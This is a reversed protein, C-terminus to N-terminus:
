WWHRLTDAVDSRFDDIAALVVAVPDTADDLMATLDMAVGVETAADATAQHRYTANARRRGQAALDYRKPGMQSAHCRALAVAEDGQGTLDATVVSDPALWDLDRWGEWGLLMAPREDPALRRLATVAATAVAVHTRHADAPNHTHVVAAGAAGCILALAQVLADRGPDGTTGVTASSLGMMIVASLGGADAAARQEAARVAVFRAADLDVMDAPRVSGAGDTCVVATFWREPDDRCALVPGPMALEVDDPHAVVALDTTRALADSVAAGDPVYVQAGPALGALVTLLDPVTSRTSRTPM